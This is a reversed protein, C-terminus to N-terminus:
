AGELTTITCPCLTCGHGGLHQWRDAAAEPIVLILDKRYRM